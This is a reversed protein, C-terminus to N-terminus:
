KKLTSRVAKKLKGVLDSAAKRQEKPNYSRVEWTGSWLTTTNVKDQVLVTGGRRVRLGIGGPQPTINVDKAQEAGVILVEAAEATSVVTLAVKQRSLEARFDVEFEPDMKDIYVAAGGPISLTQTTALSPAFSLGFAVFGAAFIRTMMRFEKFEVDEIVRFLISVVRGQLARSAVPACALVFAAARGAWLIRSIIDIRGAM